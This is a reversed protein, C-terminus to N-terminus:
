VYDMIFTTTKFNFDFLEHDFNFGCFKSLSFVQDRYETPFEFYLSYRMRGFKDEKILSWNSKHKLETNVKFIVTFLLEIEEISKRM